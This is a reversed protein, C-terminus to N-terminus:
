NRILALIEGRERELYAAGDVGDLLAFTSAPGREWAGAILKRTLTGAFDRRGLDANRVLDTLGGPLAQGFRVSWRALFRLGRLVDYFYFRPFCPKLWSEDIVGGKSLSRCLRRRILYHAGRDVFAREQPTFERPTCFLVAELPPLTSLFSSRPVPRTYAAEDCNLGGDPLQYKLFWPRIWPLAADVDAGAAALVQYVTGIQCHCPVQRVPDVGPPVEDARIPFHHLCHSDIARTLADVCAKPLRPALGMEWLLVMRWWPGDWKPWYPDRAIADLADRTELWRLDEEPDM